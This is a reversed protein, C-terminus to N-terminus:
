LHAVALHPPLTALLFRPSKFPPRPYLTRTFSLNFLLTIRVGEAIDHVVAYFRHLGETM